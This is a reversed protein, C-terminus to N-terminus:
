YGSGRYSSGPYGSGGEPFHPPANYQPFGPGSGPFEPAADPFQPGSPGGPFQPAGPFQPPSGPFEPAAGPFNPGAGPFGPSTGYGDSPPGYGSSPAHHGHHHHPHHQHEEGPFSPPTNYSPSYSSYNTPPAGTPPMYPSGGSGGGPFSPPPGTPATYASGGPGGPFSPANNSLFSPSPQGQSTYTSGASNGSFSSANPPFAPPPQGHNHGSNAAAGPYGANLSDPMEKRNGHGGSGLINQVQSVGPLGQVYSTVEHQVHQGQNYAYTGEAASVGGDGALRINQHNRVADKTLRQLTAHQKGGLGQVWSRMYQLMERQIKSSSDHFDPHFSRSLFCHSLQLGLACLFACVVM